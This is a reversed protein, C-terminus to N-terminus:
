EHRSPPADQTQPRPPPGLTLPIKAPPLCTQDTCAQATLTARIERQKSLVGAPFVATVTVTGQYVALTDAAFATRLPVPPPYHIALPTLRTFAVTTPALYDFTAPHANVHYGPDIRLIIQIEDHGNLARTTMVAHLRGATDPRPAHAIAKGATPLPYRNIATIMAAWASPQANLQGRMRRVASLARAAYDPNGTIATLRLLLRVAASVGSPVPTDGDAVPPLPLYPTQVATAFGGDPRSFHTEIAGALTIARNLWRPHKTIQYLTLFSNGLLAYDDLYGATRAKGHFVAHLLTNKRSQYALAWM